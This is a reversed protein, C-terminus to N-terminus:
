SIALLAIFAATMTVAWFGLLLTNWYLWRRLQGAQYIADREGGWARELEEDTAHRLREISNALEEAHSFRIADMRQAGASSYHDMHPEMPFTEPVNLVTGEPILGAQLGQNLRAMQYTREAIDNPSVDGTLRKCIGHLTEGRKVTYTRPGPALKLRLYEELVARGPKHDIFAIWQRVQELTMPGEFRASPPRSIVVNDGGNIEVDPM